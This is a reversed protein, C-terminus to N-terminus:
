QQYYVALRYIEPLSQERGNIHSIEFLNKIILIDTDQLASMKRDSLNRIKRV